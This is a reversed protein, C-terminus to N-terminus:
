RSLEGHQSPIPNQGTGEHSGHEAVPIARGDDFKGRGSLALSARESAAIKDFSTPREKGRALHKLGFLNVWRCRRLSPM